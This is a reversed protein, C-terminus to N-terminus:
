SLIEPGLGIPRIPQLSPVSTVRKVIGEEGLNEGMSFIPIFRYLSQFFCKMLGFDVPNLSVEFVQTFPHTLVPRPRFRDMGSTQFIKRESGSGYLYDSGSGLSRNLIIRASEM